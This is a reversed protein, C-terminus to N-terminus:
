LVRCLESVAWRTDPGNRPVRRSYVLYFYQEKFSRGEPVGVAPESEIGFLFMRRWTQEVTRETMEIGVLLAWAEAFWQRYTALGM